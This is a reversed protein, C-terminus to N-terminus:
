AAGLHRDFAQLSLALEHQGVAPGVASKPASESHNTVTSLGLARHAAWYEPGSDWAPQGDYNKRLWGRLAARAGDLSNFVKGRSVYNDCLAEYAEYPNPWRRDICLKQLGADVVETVDPTVFANRKAAKRPRAKEESEEREPKNTPEELGSSSVLDSSLSLRSIVGSTVAPTVSTVADTVPDTVSSTVGPTVSATVSHRERYARQREANTMVPRPAEATAYEVRGLYQGLLSCLLAHEEDNGGRLAKAAGHRLAKEVPSM